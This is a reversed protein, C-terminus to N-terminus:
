WRSVRFIELEGKGKVPVVGISEVELEGSVARWADPSLNVEGVRGNAEIRAATNVTDGWLDYSFRKHGVIGATVPGIHVGIRLNWRTSLRRARALMELGCKVCNLVPNELPTLLGATAMFCDGITKIKEVQHKEAISEFALSLEQLHQVVEEPERKDCFTTFGVIDAFLVAVNEHRRTKVTEKATLEEAISGPLIVRLLQDAKSLQGIRSREQEIFKDSPEFGIVDIWKFAILRASGDAAHIDLVIDFFCEALETLRASDVENFVLSFGFQQERSELGIDLYFMECHTIATRCLQSVAIAMRSVAVADFRLAECLAAVKERADVISAEIEIRLRGLEIM